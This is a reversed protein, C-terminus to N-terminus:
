PTEQAGARVATIVSTEAFRPLGSRPVKVEDTPANGVSLELNVVRAVGEVRLMWGAVETRTVPVGPQRAPTAGTQVLAFRARLRRELETVIDDPDRGIDVEVHAGVTVDVYRPRAVVLRTGLPLRGALRRRVADLWRPTEPPEAPEASRRARLAILTVTGTRPANTPPAAVWARAVELLPLALAAAEIDGASVLPHDETAHRRAARRLDTWDSREAGGAMPDPNVGFIGPFGLVTWKRGRAVNGDAGSCVAYSAYIEADASPKRGNVGNGFLVRGRAADLEYRRDDPGQDALRDCRTWTGFESDTRVELRHLPEAHPAFSLGTRNLDFSFDPEGNALHLERDVPERESIALVNPEIRLWEPPRVFGRPARMEIRFSRPSGRVGSVDLALVGTRLLGATTDTAVPLPFRDAGAVLTVAVDGYHPLEDGETAPAAAAAPVAARVGISWLAGDADARRAPFMGADSRTELELVLVDRPGADVGFPLFSAGRDNAATLEVISGDARRSSLRTIRGPVWLTKWEPRFVPADHRDLLATADTDIVRSGAFTTAPSAPDSRDAWLLGHAASRGGPATGLLAAYATREDRRTRGLSYLQAEAVWALLEMLMIGPDHANYDTWAPALAPLLSRGLDLLDDYRRDFLNPALPTM